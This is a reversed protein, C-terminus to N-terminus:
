LGNFNLRHRRYYLLSEPIHRYTAGKKILNKYIYYDECIKNDNSLYKGYGISKAKVTALRMSGHHKNKRSWYITKDKDYNINNKNCWNHRLEGVVNIDYSVIDEDYEMIRELADDRLWNDAGLMLYFPTEILMLASNFGQIQGLTNKREIFKVEKYIKSLNTCDGIGDDIFLIKEPKYNQSLLSEICQGALHGYKYSHIVITIM